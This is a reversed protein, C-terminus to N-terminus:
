LAAIQSPDASLSFAHRFYTTRWKDQPDPGFPVVTAIFADGYGLAGPGGPWLSDDFGADPWGTGLDDPGALYKWVSNRAVATVGASPPLPAQEYSLDLDFVLDTSGSNTQHVEIAVVNGGSQLLPIAAYLDYIEYGGGEHSSALTTSDIPGPPMERRLIEEGNLYLVFGDDFNVSTSFNSITAVEDVIFTRRFYTTIWKNDPDPGYPVTTTIGPEGYGLWGQGAPWSTDDFDIDRWGFGPGGPGALYKWDANRPIATIAHGASADLLGFLIAFGIGTLVSGRRPARMRQTM